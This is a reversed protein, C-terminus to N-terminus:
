RRVARKRPGNVPPLFPAVTSIDSGPLGSSPTLQYTKSIGTQNDTAVAIAAVLASGSKAVVMVLINARDKRREESDLGLERFLPDLKVQAKPTLTRTVEAIPTTRNGAEFLRVVVQGSEGKVENLYLSWTAGRAAETSQSLGDLYLPRQGGPLTSTLAQSTTPVFPLATNVSPVAGDLSTARSYVQSGPSAEVFITGQTPEQIEFLEKVVNKYEITKGAQVDVNKTVSRLTDTFTIKFTANSGSPAVLGLVTSYISTTNTAPPPGSIVFTIIGAIMGSADSWSVDAAERAYAKAGSAGQGEPQSVFAAASDTTRGRIKGIGVVSGGGNEVVIEVKGGEITGAGAATAVDDIDQEGYRPVVITTTGRLLGEKDYLNLRVTASDTGSTEALIMESTEVPTSTIGPLRHPAGIRAGEGRWFTPMVVLAREVDIASVIGSTVTIVGIKEPAARIELQGSAPRALAFLQVLPDTLTVVDNPPVVIEASRVQSADLGDQNKPTFFLKVRVSDSGVNSLRLQTVLASGTASSTTSVVGPVIFSRISPDAAATRGSSLPPADNDQVLLRASQGTQTRVTLYTYRPLASGNPAQIRNTSLKVERTGGAPIATTNWGSELVLWVEPGVEAGLEMPTSGPNRITVTIPPRTADDGARGPFFAYQTPTGSNVFEPSASSGSGIKLNVFAYPVIPAGPVSAFVIGQYSGLQDNPPGSFHLELTKPKRPELTLFVADGGAPDVINFFSNSAIEAKGLVIHVPEASINEMTFTTKKEELKEGSTVIVARPQVTFIVNPSGEVVNVTKADSYPGGKTPDCGAFAKVRHYYAGSATAIFSASNTIVLQSDMIPSFSSSLSREILYSGAPGLDAVPKWAIVYTQGIGVSGPPSFIITTSGPSSCDGVTTFQTISTSASRSADCAVNAVVSWYYTKGPFLGSVDVKTATIGPLYLSPPNTTGLFLDYSSANASPSWQFATTTPVNAGAAPAIQTFAGAAACGGAVTFSRVSTKTTADCSGRAVVQWFYKTGPVLGSTTFSTSSSTGILPPPDAAGLYVDYSTAGSSVSWSLTPSSTVGGAGDNPSIPAFAGPAQCGGATTFSRVESSATSPSPCFPDGKAIVRWFYTTAPQLNAVTLSTAELDRGGFRLPPNQTDLLLDYRFAGDVKSWAFTPGTTQQGAADAPLSLVPAAVSTCALVSRVRNNHVDSIYVDGSKSIALGSFEFFFNMLAATAPGGDGQYGADIYYATGAGAFTTITGTAADIRMIRSSYDNAIYLDNNRPDIALHETSIGAYTSIVGDKGVRRIRSNRHDAIYVVGNSDVVAHVPGSLSAAAAQGGDGSFDGTGNGAFTSITKTTGDVRWIKNAVYDAIYLNGGADFSVGVPFVLKASTAPLGENNGGPPDGGGAYFTLIGTAASVKKIRGNGPDAIYLDGKPDIAVDFPYMPSSTAPKGDESFDNYSPGTGAYTTVIGSKADVRRVRQHSSDAIFLNGASDLVLGTPSRLVTSRAPLGDGIYSGGGAVVQFDTMSTTFRLVEQYGSASVIPNGNSDVTLGYIYTTPSVITSITKTSRDVRRIGDYCAILLNGAADITLATPTDLKAATAAGGDGVGDAPNGGGAYTDIIGTTADIRRVRNNGADAVFVNGASDVAVGLPNSFKAKSAAQGDGEYGETGDLAGGVTTIVGTSLVLKRLRQGLYGVETIYLAGRDLWLGWPFRVVADVAPGNDGLTGDPRESGRGAVTSIVATSGDIKRVRGNRMDAIYIDGNGAIAIGGPNNLTSNKAPGGDGAFGAGGNGAITTVTGTKADVRRVLSSGQEVIYLNGASDYAVGRPEFLAVETALRGDDTGGGAFTQISQGFSGTACLLLVLVVADRTRLTRVFTCSM